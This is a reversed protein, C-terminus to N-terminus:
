AADGDRVPDARLHHAPLLYGDRCASEVRDLDDHPPRELRGAGRRRAYAADVVYHPIRRRHPAEDPFVQLLAGSAAMCGGMRSCGVVLLVFAPLEDLVLRVLGARQCTLPRNM